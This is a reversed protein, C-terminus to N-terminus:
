IRAMAKGNSISLQWGIRICTIHDASDQAPSNAIIIGIQIIFLRQQKLQYRYQCLLESHKEQIADVPLNQLLLPSLPLLHM